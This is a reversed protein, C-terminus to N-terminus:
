DLTNKIIYTEDPFAEQAPNPDLSVHLLAYYGNPGYNVRIVNIDDSYAQNLAHCVTEPDKGWLQRPLEKIAMRYTATQKTRNVNTQTIKGVWFGSMEASGRLVYLSVPHYLTTAGM